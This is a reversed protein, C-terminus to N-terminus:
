AEIILMISLKFFDLDRSMFSNRENTEYTIINYNYIGSLEKNIVKNYCDCKLMYYLKIQFLVHVLHLLLASEYIKFINRNLKFISQYKGLQLLVTRINICEIMNLAFNAVKFRM